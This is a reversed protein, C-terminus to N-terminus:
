LVHSDEGAVGVQKVLCFKFLPYRRQLTLSLREVFTATVALEFELGDGVVDGVVLRCDLAHSRIPLTVVLNHLTVLIAVWDVIERNVGAVKGIFLVHTDVQLPQCLAGVGVPQILTDALNIAEWDANDGFPHHRVTNLFYLVTKNNLAVVFVLVVVTLQCHSVGVGGAHVEDVSPFIGPM